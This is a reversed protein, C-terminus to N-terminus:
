ESQIQFLRSFGLSIQFNSITVDPLKGIRYTVHAPLTAFTGVAVPFDQPASFQLRGQNDISGTYNLGPTVSSGVM